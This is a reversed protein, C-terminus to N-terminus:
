QTSKEIVNYSSMQFYFHFTDLMRENTEFDGVMM